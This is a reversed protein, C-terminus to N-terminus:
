DSLSQGDEEKVARKKKRDVKVGKVFAEAKDEESSGTAKLGHVFGNFLVSARGISKKLDLEFDDFAKQLTHASASATPAEEQEPPNSALPSPLPGASRRRRRKASELLDDFTPKKTSEQATASPHEHSHHDHSAVTEAEPSEELMTPLAELKEFSKGPQEIDKAVPEAVMSPPPPPPPPAVAVQTQAQIQAQLFQKGWRCESPYDCNDWCDKDWFAAPTAASVAPKRTWAGGMWQMESPGNAAFLPRPVVASVDEVKMEDDSEVAVDFAKLAEAAARQEEVDRRWTGWAKWRQYDFESVCPSTKRSTKRGTKRDVKTVIGGACFYHNDDLCRRTTGLDYLRGCLHCQWLWKQPEPPPPPISLPFKPGSPKLHPNRPASIAIRPTFPSPPIALPSSRHPTPTITLTSRM